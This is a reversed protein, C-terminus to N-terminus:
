LKPTVELMAFTSYFSDMEIHPDRKRPNHIDAITSIAAALYSSVVDYNCVLYLVMLLDTESSHTLNTFTIM